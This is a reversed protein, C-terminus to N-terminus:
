AASLASNIAAQHISNLDSPELRATRRLEDIMVRVQNNYENRFYRERLESQVDAFSPRTGSDAQDCRVIFFSDPGEIIDSVQGSGMRYLAAVAPEYRERVSGQSIYGWAGGDAAHSDHSTERAVEAFSRGSNIAAQAALIRRRAEARAATYQEVTPSSSSTTLCMSPRIEILSMSRRADKTMAEVNADYVSQLEKRSPEAISSKIEGELYSAIVSERRVRDRYYELTQGRQELAKEFRHQVGGYERTVTRRIEADVYREVNAEMGEGLRLSAKQYLLSETIRDALWQASRQEVFLRFQDLPLEGRKQALEEKLDKSIDAPDVSEGNVRLINESTTSAPNSGTAHNTATAGSPKKKGSSSLPSSVSGQCGLVALLIVSMPLGAYSCPRFTM